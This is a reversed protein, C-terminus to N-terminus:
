QRHLAPLVFVYVLAAIAGATFLATVVAMMREGRERTSEYYSRAQQAPLARIIKLRRAQQWYHGAAALSAMAIMALKILKV